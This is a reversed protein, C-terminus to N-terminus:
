STKSAPVVFTHVRLLPAPEVGKRQGRYGCIDNTLLTTYKGVYSRAKPNTSNKLFEMKAGNELLYSLNSPTHSTHISCFVSVATRVLYM